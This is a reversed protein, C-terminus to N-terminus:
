LYTSQLSRTVGISVRRLKARPLRSNQFGNGFIPPPLQPRGLAPAPASCAGTAITENALNQPAAVNDRQASNQPVPFAYSGLVSEVPAAVDPERGIDYKVRM